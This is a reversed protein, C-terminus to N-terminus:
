FHQSTIDLAIHMKSPKRYPRYPGKIQASPGSKIGVDYEIMLLIYRADNQSKTYRDTLPQMLDYPQGREASQRFTYLLKKFYLFFFQHKYLSRDM